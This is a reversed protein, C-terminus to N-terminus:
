YRLIRRLFLYKFFNFAAYNDQAFESPSSVKHISIVQIGNGHEYLPYSLWPLLFIILFAVLALVINHWIGACFIRLQKKSSLGELGEMRVYAIPVMCLIFM